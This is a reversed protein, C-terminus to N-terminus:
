TVRVVYDSDAVLYKSGNLQSSDAKLVNGNADTVNLNSFIPAQNEVSFNFSHGTSNYAVKNNFTDNVVIIFASVNTANLTNKPILEGQFVIPGLRSLRENSVRVLEVRNMGISENITIDRPTTSPSTTNWYVIVSGDTANFNTDNVVVTINFAANPSLSVTGNLEDKFLSITRGNVPTGSYVETINIDLIRPGRGDIGITVNHTANVNMIPKNASTENGQRGKTAIVFTYVDETTVNANATINFWITVNTTTPSTHNVSNTTTTNVLEGTWVGAVLISKGTLNQVWVNKSSNDMDMFKGISGNTWSTGNSMGTGFHLRFVHDPITMNIVSLNGIGTNTVTFNLVLDRGPKAWKDAFANETANIQYNGIKLTTNVFTLQADDVSQGTGGGVFYIGVVLLLLSILILVGDRKKIM